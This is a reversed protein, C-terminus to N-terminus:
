HCDTKTPHAMASQYARQGDIHTAFPTEQWTNSFGRVADHILESIISMQGAWGYVAGGTFRILVQQIIDCITWLLSVIYPLLSEVRPEKWRGSAYLMKFPFPMLVHVWVSTFTLWSCIEEHTPWRQPHRFINKIHLPGPSSAVGSRTFNNAWLQCKDQERYVPVNQRTEEM